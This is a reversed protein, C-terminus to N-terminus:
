TYAIFCFEPMKQMTYYCMNQGGGGVEFENERGQMANAKLVPGYVIPLYSLKGQDYLRPPQM